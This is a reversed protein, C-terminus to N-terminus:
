KISEFHLGITLDDWPTLSNAGPSSQKSSLGTNQRTKRERYDPCKSCGSQVESCYDRGFSVSSAILRQQATQTVLRCAKSLIVELIFFLFFLFCSSCCDSYTNSLCSLSLLVVLMLSKKKKKKQLTVVKCM